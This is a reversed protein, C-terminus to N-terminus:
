LLRRMTEDSVRGAEPHERYYRALAATALANKAQRKLDVGYPAFDVLAFRVIWQAEPYRKWSLWVDMPKSGNVKLGLETLVAFGEREFDEEPLEDSYYPARALVITGVAKSGVRPSRDYATVLEGARFRRAYDDNWDRRTCTKEGLLLAPTTWSFAIIKM